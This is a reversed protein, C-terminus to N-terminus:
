GSFGRVDDEERLLVRRESHGIIAWDIKADALQGVSLEGTFPGNPRDFVNQASVAIGPSALQRALFLYLSPPAIAVETRPDLDADNLRTVIATISNV